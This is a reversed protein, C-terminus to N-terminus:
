VRVLLMPRAPAIAREFAAWWREADRRWHRILPLEDAPNEVARPLAGGSGGALAPGLRRETRGDWRPYAGEGLLLWALECELDRALRELYKWTPTSGRMWHDVLAIQYGHAAAFRGWRIEGTKEDVYGLAVLRATIREVMGPFKLGAM